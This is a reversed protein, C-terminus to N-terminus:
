LNRNCPLPKLRQIFPRPLNIFPSSFLTRMRPAFFQSDKTLMIRRIGKTPSGSLLSLDKTRGERIEVTGSCPAHNQQEGLIEYSYMTSRVSSVPSALLLPCCTCIPLSWACRSVPDVHPMAHSPNTQSPLTQTSDRKSKWVWLPAM